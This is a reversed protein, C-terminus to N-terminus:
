QHPRLGKPVWSIASSIEKIKIRPTEFTEKKKKREETSPLFQLAAIYFAYFTLITNTCQLTQTPASTVYM